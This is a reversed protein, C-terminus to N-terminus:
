IARLIKRVLEAVSEARMRRFISRRRSEVTRISLSCSQAIQKNTAGDVILDLVQRESATLNSLRREIERKEEWSHQQERAKQLSERIAMFLEHSDYPKVLFTVAGQQMAQVAGRVSALTSTVIVPLRFGDRALTEQLELGSMGPLQVEVVLCATQGDDYSSLFEEASGFSHCCLKMSDTIAIVSEYIEKQEHVLYVFRETRDDM